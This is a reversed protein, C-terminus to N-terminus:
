NFHHNKCDCNYKGDVAKAFINTRVNHKKAIYEIKALHQPSFSFLLEYEEGSCGVNKSIDYFFDFGIKSEKSLRELEFFLGDSIDM